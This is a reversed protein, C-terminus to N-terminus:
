RNVNVNVLRIEIPLRSDQLKTEKPLFPMVYVRFFRAPDVDFEAQLSEDLKLLNGAKGLLEELLLNARTRGSVKVAPGSIQPPPENHRHYGRSGKVVTPNMPLAVSANLTARDM